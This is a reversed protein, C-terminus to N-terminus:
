RELVVTETEVDFSDRLQNWAQYENLTSEPVIIHIGRRLFFKFIKLYDQYKNDQLQDTIPNGNEDFIYSRVSFGGQNETEGSTTIRLYITFIEDVSKLQLFMRFWYNIKGSEHTHKGLYEIFDTFEPYVGTYNVFIRKAKTIEDSYVDHENIIDPYKEVLADYFEKAHPFKPYRKVFADVTYLFDEIDM